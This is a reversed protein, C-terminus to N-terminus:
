GLQLVLAGLALPQEAVGPYGARGAARRPGAGSGRGLGVRSLYGSALRRVPILSRQLRGRCGGLRLGGAEVVLGPNTASLRARAQHARANQEGPLFSRPAAPTLM